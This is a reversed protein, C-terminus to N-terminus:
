SECSADFTLSVDIGIICCKIPAGLFEHHGSVPLEDRVRNLELHTSTVNLFDSKNCEM